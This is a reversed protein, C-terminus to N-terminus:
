EETTKDKIFSGMPNIPSPEEQWWGKIIHNKKEEDALKKLKYASDRLVGYLIGCGNDERDADGQDALAMMEEVLKLTKVIHLNCPKVLNDGRGFKVSNNERFKSFTSSSIATFSKLNQALFFVLEGRKPLHQISLRIGAASGLCLRM